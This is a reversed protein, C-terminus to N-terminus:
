SSPSRPIAWSGDCPSCSRSRGRTPPKQPHKGPPCGFGWGETSNGYPRGCRGRDHTPPRGTSFTGSTSGSDTRWTNICPRGFSWAGWPFHPRGVPNYYPYGSAGDPRSPSSSSGGCLTSTSGDHQCGVHVPAARDHGYARCPNTGRRPPLPDAPPGPDPAEVFGAPPLDGVLVGTGAAVATNARNREQAEELLIHHNAESLRRHAYVGRFGGRTGRHIEFIGAEGLATVRLRVHNRKHCEDGKRPCIYHVRDISRYIARCCDEGVILHQVQPNQYDDGISPVSTGSHVSEDDDFDSM